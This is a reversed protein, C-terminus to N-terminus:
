FGLSFGGSIYLRSRDAPGSFESGIGCDLVVRERFQHRFGIEGGVTRKGGRLPAQEFFIDALLVTRTHLPAGVPYSGGLAFMYTGHRENKNHSSGIFRYGANFNLTLRYFSKTIIGTLESDIGSADVGTPVQLSGKLALAPLALSEQNFNYLISIGADGSKGPGDVDHPNTFLTTGVELQTNPLIGYVFQIPFLWQDTSKKRTRFGLGTEMVLEGQSVPYADQIHLPRGEDLNGHDVATASFCPVFFACMFAASIIRKKRSVVM